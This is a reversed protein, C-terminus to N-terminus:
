KKRLMINSRELWNDLTEINKMIFTSDTSKEGFVAVKLGKSILNIFKDYQSSFCIAEVIGSYTYLDFYCYTRKNRDKKKQIHSIIGVDFFEEGINVVDFPRQIYSYIEAFPNDSLFVGLAHFEFFARDESYKEWLENFEKQMKDKRKQKWEEYKITEHERKKYENFLRVREEKNNSEIGYETKLVLITPTTKVPKYEPYTDNYKQKVIYKLFKELLKEKENGFAGGKILAVVQKTNLEPVREILNVIGTFKGNKNREDIIKEVVTAGIAKIAGLGFLIKGNVISFGIESNNIQPPLVDIDHEIARTVNKNVKSNDSSCANLVATYFEVPYHAKLYATQLSLCSYGIGHSKNFEDSIGM